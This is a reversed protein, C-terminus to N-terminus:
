LKLGPISLGGTIKGLQSNAVEQAKRLAENAATLILDELMTVDEPDVAAPDIKVEVLEHLGNVTVSVAGGGSTANIRKEGLEEQMKEMHKMMKQYNMGMNMGM